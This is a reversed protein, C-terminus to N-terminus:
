KEWDLLRKEGELKKIETIDQSFELTGRYSGKEDRLAFYRIHIFRGKMNIWFGAVDKKGSRFNKVIQEVVHVSEPPHCNHVDRGIIARTRPFIREHSESFYRVKNNEDVFTIDLPLHGFILRIQESDLSGTQLDILRGTLRSQSVHEDKAVETKKEPKPQWYPFGLELAQSRISELGKDGLVSLIYPFLIKEERFKISLMHFFVDGVLQNIELSNNGHEKLLKLISRINQRIQDHFSWMLQLCRHEPMQREIWPFFVNEKIVYYTGFKELKEFHGALEARIKESKPNKFFSKFVPRIIDLLGEMERNNEEMIQLMSGPAADPRERSSISKHLINLIKSSLPRLIEPSHGSLILDDFLFIFDSPEVLEIFKGNELIFSRANGTQLLLEALEHLKRLRQERKNTFGSM